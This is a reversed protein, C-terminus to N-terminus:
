ISRQKRAEGGAAAKKSVPEDFESDSTDDGKIKKDEEVVDFLIAPGLKEAIDLVEMASLEGVKTFVFQRGYEDSPEVERVQFMYSKGVEINNNDAITGSLVNRNPCRGALVSLIIPDKGNKDASGKTFKGVAAAIMSTFM